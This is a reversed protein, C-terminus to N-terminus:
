DREDKEIDSKDQAQMKQVLMLSEYKSDICDQLAVSLDPWRTLSRVAELNSWTQVPLSLTKSFKNGGITSSKM